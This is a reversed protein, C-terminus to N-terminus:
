SVQNSHNLLCPRIQATKSHVFLGSVAHTPQPPTSDFRQYIESGHDCTACGFFAYGVDEKDARLTFAGGVRQAGFRDAHGSRRLAAEGFPDRSGFPSRASLPWDQGCGPQVHDALKQAVALGLGDLAMRM